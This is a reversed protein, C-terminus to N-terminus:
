PQSKDETRNVLAPRYGLRHTLDIMEQQISIPASKDIRLYVLTTSRAEAAQRIAEELDAQEVAEEALYFTPGKIGQKVNIVVASEDGLRSGRFESEPLSIEVYTEKTVVGTLLVLALLLGVFDFAPVIYISGPSEPLTMSLKM